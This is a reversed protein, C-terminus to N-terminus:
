LKNRMKWHQLCDNCAKRNECQKEKGCYKCRGEKKWRAQRNLKCKTTAIVSRERCPACRSRDARDKSKGCSACMGEPYFRQRASSNTRDLSATTLKVKRRAEQEALKRAEAEVRRAEQQALRQQAAEVRQAEQQALRAAKRQKALERDAISEAKRAEREQKRQLKQEPTLKARFNVEYGLSAAVLNLRRLIVRIGQTSVLYNLQHSLETANLCQRYSGVIIEYYVDPRPAMRLRRDIGEIIIALTRRRTLCFKGTCEVHPAYEECLKDVTKTLDTVQARLAAVIKIYRERETGIIAAQQLRGHFMRAELYALLVRRTATENLAWQPIANPRWVNQTRTTTTMRTYDDFSIGAAFEGDENKETLHIPQALTRRRVAGTEIYAGHAIAPPCHTITFAAATAM